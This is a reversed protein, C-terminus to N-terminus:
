LQDIIAMLKARGPMGSVGKWQGDKTKFVMGPTGTFGAEQMLFNHKQILKIRKPDPKAQAPYAGEEHTADYKEENKRFAAAPDKADLIATARGLSDPKLFAVLAVKLRVRGKDVLPLLVKNLRDCFLCNPDEFVYLTPADARGLTILHGDAELQKIVAGYKPKPAYKAKYMATLNKGDPSILAGVILYGDPAGFVVSYRPGEKILYGTLGAAAQFQKEVKLRGQAARMALPKPLPPQAAYVAPATFGAALLLGAVATRFNM